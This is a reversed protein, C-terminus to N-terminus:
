GRADATVIWAPTVDVETRTAGALVLGAPTLEAGVRGPDDLSVFVIRGAPRLARALNTFGADSTWRM